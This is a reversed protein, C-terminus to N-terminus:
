ILNSNLTIYAKQKSNININKASFGKKHLDDIIKTSLFLKERLDDFGLFISINEYTNLLTLGFAQNMEIETACGKLMNQEQLNRILRLATTIIRFSESSNKVIDDKHLGLLLPFTREHSKAKKFIVGDTDVLYLDDLKIVACPKRESILIEITDLLSRKVVAKKIWPDSELRNSAEVLDIALINEGKNIGTIQIAKKRHIRNCGSVHIKQIKFFDAHLLFHYGIKLLMFFFLATLLLACPYLAKQPKGARPKKRKIIRNKQKFSSTVM